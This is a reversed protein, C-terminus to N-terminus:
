KTAMFAEIDKVEKIINKSLNINGDKTLLINDEIRIGIGEDAIYLGPEVTLIQGEKFPVTYDGVDHVDLGLFHGISHYYYKSLENEDQIKGLKILGEALIKKAYDNWEQNTVGPRLFEITKKNCELVIEYYAKQRETFKGNIPFTRSIDSCYVDYDVGLDFLILENDLTKRNNSEYHLITGNLGSGAITKFSPKVGHKKLTYHYFAEIEYEYMGPKSHRMMTQIGQDTIKIAEKIAEIENPEKVSRLRNLVPHVTEINIDPYHKKLKDALFEEYSLLEDTNERHFDFYFSEIKGYQAARSDGLFRSLTDLVTLNSLVQDVETLSKAEDFSLGSGVWLAKLADYPEIFLLRSTKHNGKILVLYSNEQVLGTLYYFNRGVEYEYHQDATRKPAKGSYIITISQDKVENLVKLQREKYM